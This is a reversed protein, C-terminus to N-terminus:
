PQRVLDRGCEPCVFKAESLDYGCYVCQGRRLRRARRLTVRAIWAAPLGALVALLWLPAAITKHLSAGGASEYVGLGGIRWNGIGNYFVRDLMDPTKNATSTSIADWGDNKSFGEVDAAAPEKDWLSQYVSRRLSLGGDSVSASLTVVDISWAGMTGAAVAEDRHVTTRVKLVTGVRGASSVWLGICLGVLLLSAIFVLRRM